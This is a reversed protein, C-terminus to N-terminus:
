FGFILGLIFIGFVVLIWPAYILLETTKNEPKDSNDEEGSLAMKEEIEKKIQGSIKWAAAIMSLIITTIIFNQGPSPWVRGLSAMLIFASAGIFIAFEAIATYMLFRKILEKLGM